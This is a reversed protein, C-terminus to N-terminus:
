PDLTELLKLRPHGSDLRNVIHAPTCARGMYTPPTHTHTEMIMCILMPPHTTYTHTHIHAHVHVYNHMHAYIYHIPTLM